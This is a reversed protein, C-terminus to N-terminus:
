YSDPTVVLLCSHVHHGHALLVVHLTDTISTCSAIDSLRLTCSAGRAKVSQRNYMYRRWVRCAHREIMGDCACCLLLSWAQLVIRQLAACVKEQVGTLSDKASQAASAVADSAGAVLNKVTDMSSAQKFRLDFDIAIAPSRSAPFRCTLISCYVSLNHQKPHKTVHATRWALGPQASAQQQRSSSEM